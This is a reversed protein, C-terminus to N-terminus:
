FDLGISVYTHRAGFRHGDFPWAFDLRLPFGLLVTRLGLGAGVKLDDLVREGSENEAFVNFRPDAGPRGWVSGADVFATTQINYLPAIPLPGPLVAAILPARAELNLLGFHSGNQANIDYGRLPLVPTAFAFDTIDDVPLGNEGDFRRGIFWNQVGGAYFLQPDPGHSTGGSLRAAFTYPGLSTYARADGLLTGFRVQEGSVLNGPSGSVSVALRHGGRPSLLGPVTVDRTFTVAPYWLFRTTPERQPNSINARNVGLGSFDFDLRQFKDLPYSASIGGGYNRYRFTQAVTGGGTVRQFDRLFAASHYGFFNWDWRGPLYSYSLFYNSNRLDVRLNSMMSFRHNGLMDSFQMQMSGQVGYLVDYGTAGRVVDLSFDLKYPRPKYDGDDTRNNDVEFPKRPLGPDDAQEEARAEDYGEGFVYDRFDVRTDGYATTDASAVSPPSATTDEELTGAGAATDAESLPAHASAIWATREAGRRYPLGDLADRMFPNNQQMDDSAVALAPATKPSDSGASGANREVREAWVNPQLAGTSDAPTRGFPTNLVYISPRGKKLSTLAVKKGNAALSVQMAGVAANTLPRTRGTKMDRAYLNFIGNRDSVFMIREASADYKASRDDWTEEFTLREARSSGLKLRYVDYQSFDHRTMDFRGARYRGLATRNKRDSHFVLAKGDPRWSPEHDSFVDNTHNTTKRTRLNLVFIDSQAHQTGAFAIRDGGPSWAVAGIEEVGPVRYHKSEGSEADVVAIADSSGSKVAVAIKHGDPHWTIGPTLIPLSEFAPSTQGDILKRITEGTSADALYVDFFAGKTTIYALRDGQPSLAPNTNYYGGSKERTILARGAEDLDDRAATAPYYIEKLHRHWEESLNELKMGTAQKFSKGVSRTTRLRRLIEAIKEQGYQEAVFDWVSQGGRYAFYGSLRSIPALNDNLIAERVYMDSRTDWGQAAYEALGENFWTPIRLQIDNQLINQISGGYFMDNLTAHVLEHHVVRRYERYDGTFPIAIRNKFLETVGGIGQAFPPLNAVNTVAFDSHSQYVLIPIRKTIEYGLLKELQDYADEAAKATFNALPEGGEYFYVDFHKSQVYSWDHAEYQVKNKGFGFYQAHAAQSLSLAATLAVVLIASARFSARHCM